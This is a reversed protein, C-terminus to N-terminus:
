KTNGALEQVTNMIRAEIDETWASPLGYEMQATAGEYGGERLVRVSPIYSMLDNSYGMVFTDRGLAQKIAVAYDVVVEGGLAVLLQGGLRWVYVPYRYASPLAKGADLDALFAKAARVQWPTDCQSLATLTERSPAPTLALEVETQKLDMKADLPTMPDEVAREVSAALERGYQRALAITRRPLPNQDAGCGAFFLATLGPHAAELEAQAFGPYDGSWRCIDLTTAHCAYGFLLALLSGDERAVKLVPVAHDVPGKLDHTDLIEAERNNRRNVAFRAVGNAASLRAPVMANFAEAACAVVRDEFQASYREIARIRAEDLPYIFYLSDRM